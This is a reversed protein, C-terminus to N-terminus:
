PPYPQSKPRLESKRMHWAHPSLAACECVRLRARVAALSGSAGAAAGRNEEQGLSGLPRPRHGRSDSDPAGRPRYGARRGPQPPCLPPGWPRTRLRPVCGRSERVGTAGTGAGAHRARGNKGPRGPARPEAGIEHPHPDDGQEWGAKAAGGPCESLSAM